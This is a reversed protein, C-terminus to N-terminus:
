WPEKNQNIKHAHALVETFNYFNVNHSSLYLKRAFDVQGASEPYRLFRQDLNREGLRIRDLADSDKLISTLEYAPHDPPLEEMLSHFEIAVAMMELETQSIGHAHFLQVFGPLKREVAWRGHQTCYGDHQRAMDHVFAAALAQFLLDDRKLIAALECTHVMVRYTHGIGHLRSHYDFHAPRLALDAYFGETNM